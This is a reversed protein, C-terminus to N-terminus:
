KKRKMFVFYFLVKKWGKLGKEGSCKFFIKENKGNKFFFFKKKEEREYFVKNRKKKL